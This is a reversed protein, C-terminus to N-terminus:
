KRNASQELYSLHAAYSRISTRVAESNSCGLQKGIWRITSEDFETITYTRPKVRRNPAYEALPKTETTMLLM